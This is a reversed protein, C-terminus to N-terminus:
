RRQPHGASCRDTGPRVLNQCRRGAATIHGCIEAAQRAGLPSIPPLSDGAAPGPQSRRIAAAEEWCGRQECIRAAAASADALKGRLMRSRETSGSESEVADLCLWAIGMTATLTQPLDTYATDLNADTLEFQSELHHRNIHQYTIGASKVIQKIQAGIDRGAEAAAQGVPHKRRPHSGRAQTVSKLLLECVQRCRESLQSCEAGLDEREALSLDDTAPGMDEIEAMNHVASRLAAMAGRITVDAAERNSMPCELRKAGNAAPRAPEGRLTVAQVVLNTLSSAPVCELLYAVEPRDTVSMDVRHGVERGVVESWERELRRRQGYDLDELVAVLDIDSFEGAEGRPVSGTVMVQVAGLGELLGAARKADGM